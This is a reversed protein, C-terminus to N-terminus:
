HGRLHCGCIPCFFNRRKKHINARVIMTALWTAVIAGVILTILEQGYDPKGDPGILPTATWHKSMVYSWGAGIVLLALITVIVTLARGEIKPMVWGAFNCKPNPCLFYAAHKRQRGTLNPPPAVNPPILPIASVPQSGGSTGTGAVVASQAGPNPAATAYGRFALEDAPTFLRQCRSCRVKSALAKDPVKLRTGCECIIEIEM